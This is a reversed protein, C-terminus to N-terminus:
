CGLHLFILSTANRVPEWDIVVIELGSHIVMECDESFSRGRERSPDLQNNRDIPFNHM